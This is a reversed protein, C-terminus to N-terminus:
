LRGVGAGAPGFPVMARSKRRSQHYQDSSTLSPHGAWQRGQCGPGQWARPGVGAAVAGESEMAPRTQERSGLDEGQEKDEVAEEGVLEAVELQGEDAQGDTLRPWGATCARGVTCARAQRPLGGAGEWGAPAGWGPPLVRCPDNTSCVEHKAHVWATDQMHVWTRCIDVKGNRWDNLERQVLGLIRLVVDLSRGSAQQDHDDQSGWRSSRQRGGQGKDAEWCLTAQAAGFCM